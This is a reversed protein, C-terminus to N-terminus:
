SECTAYIHTISLKNPKKRHVVTTTDKKTNNSEIGNMVNKASGEHRQIRTLSHTLTNRTRNMQRNRLFMQENLCFYCFHRYLFFVRWRISIDAYTDRKEKMWEYTHIAPMYISTYQTNIYLNIYITYICCECINYIRSESRKRYYHTGFFSFLLLFDYLIRHMRHLIYKIETSKPFVIHFDLPELFWFLHWM